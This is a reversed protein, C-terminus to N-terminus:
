TQKNKTKQFIFGTKIYFFWVVDTVHFLVLIVNRSTGSVIIHTFIHITVAELPDMNPAIFKNWLQPGHYSLKFKAFNKKYKPKFLINKSTRLKNIPKLTYIHKFTLPTNGNKCFHMICFAHFINMEYVAMANVPELRPKASTLKDKFNIIRTAHKQHRHLAQLKSKNTSAM